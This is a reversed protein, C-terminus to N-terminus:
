TYQGQLDVVIVTIDDHIKRKKGQPTERISKVTM